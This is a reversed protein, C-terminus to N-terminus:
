PKVDRTTAEEVDVGVGYEYVLQGGLLGTISILAATLLSTYIGWPVILAAPDPGWRLMFNFAALSLLMVALIGHAWATVLRRIRAVTFLDIAGVLGSIGGLITGAAALYFGARAWFPDETWWFLIDTFVLMMLAAIPFHILLPHLPHGHIAARSEIKAYPMLLRLEQSTSLPRSIQILLYRVMLCLSHSVTFFKPRLLNAFTATNAMSKLKVAHLPGKEIM